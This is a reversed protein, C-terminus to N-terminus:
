SLRLRRWRLRRRGRRWGVVAEVTAEMTAEVAAKLTAEMMAEVTGEMISWKYPYTPNITPNPFISGRATTHPAFDAGRTRIPKVPKGFESPARAKRGNWKYPNGKKTIVVQNLQPNENFVRGNEEEKSNYWRKFQILCCGICCLISIATIVIGWVRFFYISKDFGTM